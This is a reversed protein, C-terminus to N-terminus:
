PTMGEVESDDDALYIPSKSRHVPEFKGSNQTAESSNRIGYGFYIVFGSFVSPILFSFSVTLKHFIHGVRETELWLLTLFALKVPKSTLSYISSKVFRNGDVSCLSDM